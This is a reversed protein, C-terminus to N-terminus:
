GAAVGNEVARAMPAKLRCAESNGRQRPAAGMLRAMMAPSRSVPTDIMRSSRLGRCRGPRGPPARRWRGRCSPRRIAHRARRSRRSAAPARKTPARVRRARNGAALRSRRSRRRSSRASRSACRSTARRRRLHVVPDAAQRGIGAGPELDLDAALALPDPREARGQRLDRARGRCHEVIMEGDGAALAGHAEGFHLAGAPLRHGGVLEEAANGEAGARTSRQDAM